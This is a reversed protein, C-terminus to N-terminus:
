TVLSSGRLDPIWLSELLDGFRHIVPQPIRM